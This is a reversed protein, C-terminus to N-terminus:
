LIDELLHRFKKLARARHSIKAKIAPDLEGFTKNYRPVVFLPDFGFGNSGKEKTAILGSCTGQVVGLERGQGDVLAILCRYRAQRGSTPVNKLMQFLKQNCAAEGAGHGAFRASYIGPAWGLAKVEIGSDDSMTMKGTLRAIT